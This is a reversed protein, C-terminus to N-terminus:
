ANLATHLGTIIYDQTADDLWAHFPLALIRDCLEATVELGGTEIPYAAYPPHQHIGQTYYIATPIGKQKLAAQITNRDTGNPLLVCYQAWSSTADNALKQPTVLGALADHYRDALVQRRRLEDPFIALKELLVAAQMTDMRATMGIRDYQYRNKGMGHVRASKTIDALDDDDTFVAGGDGYCGLPKAPFFSTATMKAMQGVVKGDRQAGLSQAADDLVWLGHSDAFHNITVMDAAQGFLGVPIIGVVRIGAVIVGDGPRLGLAMLCLLLADTGSSTSIAHRTKTFQALKTELATIEPGMIYQGHNLVKQLAEDVQPRIHAQQAALDIFPIM